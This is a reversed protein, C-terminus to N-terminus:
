IPASVTLISLQMVRVNNSHTHIWLRREFQPGECPPINLSVHQQLERVTSVVGQYPNSSTTTRAENADFIVVQEEPYKKVLRDYEFAEYMRLNIEHNHMGQCEPSISYQLPSCRNVERRASDLKIMADAGRLLLLEALDPLGHRVAIHLFTLGKSDVANLDLNTRRLYEDLRDRMGEQNYDRLGQTPNWSGDMSLEFM